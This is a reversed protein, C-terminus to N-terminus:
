LREQYSAINCTNLFLKSTWPIQQCAQLTKKVQCGQGWFGLLLSSIRHKVPHPTNVLTLGAQNWWDPVALARKSKREREKIVPAVNSILDYNHKEVIDRENETGNLNRLFINIKCFLACVAKPQLLVQLGLSREWDWNSNAIENSIQRLPDPLTQGQTEALQHHYTSQAQTTVSSPTNALSSNPLHVACINGCVMNITQLCYSFGQKCLISNWDLDDCGLHMGSSRPRSDTFVLVKRFSKRRVAFLSITKSFQHGISEETFLKVWPHLHFLWELAYLM